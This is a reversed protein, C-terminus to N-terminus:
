EETLLGYNTEKVLLCALKVFHIWEMDLTRTVITTTEKERREREEGV